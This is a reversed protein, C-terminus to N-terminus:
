VDETKECYHDRVNLFCKSAKLGGEKISKSSWGKIRELEVNEPVFCEQMYLVPSPQIWRQKDGVEPSAKKCEPNATEHPVKISTSTSSQSLFSDYKLMDVLQKATCVKEYQWIASSNTWDVMYAHSSCLTSIKDSEVQRTQFESERQPKATDSEVTSPLM